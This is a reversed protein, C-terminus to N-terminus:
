FCFNPRLAFHARKRFRSVNQYQTIKFFLNVNISRKHCTSVSTIM